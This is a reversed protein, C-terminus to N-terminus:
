QVQFNLMMGDDEHELNHCHVLYLGRYKEFRLVIRVTESPNVLVTDKWGMDVPTLAGSSRSVVQFQTGHVHMPHPEDGKNQFEWVETTGFAVTEDVREMAFLKGNITHRMMEGGSMAGHPSSGGELSMMEMNLTFTRTKTAAGANLREIPTLATPISIQRSTQRKVNFRMVPMETGQKYSSMMGSMGGHPTSGTGSATGSAALMFEMSKLLISGNMAVDAFNVLLEVREGPSLMVSTVRQPADILGGDTGIVHFAMGNEFGLKMVRATAGNLVRFRYLGNEVDLYPAPVGNVFMTDGLYGTMVDNMSPAYVFRKLQSFRKDQLVLPVDFEGSPLQLAREAPDEVIFLGAMGMYTQRATNKHPHPHYWYTGARDLVPFNYAFSGGAKAVDKPHGDMNSPVTLGHWHINTETALQNQLQASFMAGKQLRITPALVSGGMAWAQFSSNQLNLTTSGVGIGGGNWAPPMALPLGSETGIPIDTMDGMTMSNMCSQLVNGSALALASAGALHLFTRRTTNM